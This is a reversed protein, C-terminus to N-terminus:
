QAKNSLLEVTEGDAPDRINRTGVGGSNIGSAVQRETQEAQSLSQQAQRRVIAYYVKGCGVEKNVFGADLM